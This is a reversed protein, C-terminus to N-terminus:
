CIPCSIKKRPVDHFALAMLMFFIEEKSLAGSRISRTEQKLKALDSGFVAKNVNKGLIVNQVM